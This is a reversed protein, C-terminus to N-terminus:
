GDNMEKQLQQMEFGELDGIDEDYNSPNGQWDDRLQQGFSNYWAGCQCQIDNMGRYREITRNCRKCEWTNTPEPETMKFARGEYDPLQRHTM